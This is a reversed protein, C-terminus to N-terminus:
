ARERLPDWLPDQRGARRFAAEREECSPCSGCPRDRDYQCSWTEGFPVGLDHGRAVIEAKTMGELPNTVELPSAEHTLLGQALLANLTDFFAPSADPFTDPDTGNHGGVIQRAGLVEGMNAAVAYFILNRAPVYADPAAELHSGLRGEERLDEVEELFPLSVEELREGCGTREVLEHTARREPLPRNPYDFTLPHVEWRQDVSWYLAVASDIGGSVLVVVRTM